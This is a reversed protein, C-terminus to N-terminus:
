VVMLLTDAVPFAPSPITHSSPHVTLPHVAELFPATPIRVLSALVTLPHTTASFPLKPIRPECIVTLSHEANKLPLTPMNQVPVATTSDHLTSPLSKPPILADLPDTIRPHM